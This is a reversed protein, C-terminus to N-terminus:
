IPAEATVQQLFCIEPKGSSIRSGFDCSPSSRQPWLREFSACTFRISRGARAACRSYRSWPWRRCTSPPDTEPRQPGPQHWEATEKHRHIRGRLFRPGFTVAVCAMYSVKAHLTPSSITARCSVSVGVKPAQKGAHECSARGIAAGRRVVEEHRLERREPSPSSGAVTGIM